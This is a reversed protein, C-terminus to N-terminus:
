AHSLIIDVEIMADNTKEYEDYFTVNWKKGYLGLVHPKHARIFMHKDEREIQGCIQIYKEFIHTAAIVCVGLSEDNNIIIEIKRPPNELLKFRM